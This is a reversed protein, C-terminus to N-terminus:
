HARSDRDEGAQARSAPGVLTPSRCGQACACSRRRASWSWAGCIATVRDPSGAWGRRAVPATRERPLDSGHQASGDPDSCRSMRCQREYQPRPSRVLARYQPSRRSTEDARHCALIQAELRDVESSLARLQAALAHLASRAHVPLNDQQEHLAKLLATV